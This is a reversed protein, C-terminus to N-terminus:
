EKACWKQVFDESKKLSPAFADVFVVEKQAVRSAVIGIGTGM